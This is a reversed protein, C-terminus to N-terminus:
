IDCYTLGKEAALTLQNNIEKIKELNKSTKQRIDQLTEPSILESFPYDLEQTM